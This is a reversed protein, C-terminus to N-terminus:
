RCPVGTGRDSYSKGAEPVFEFDYSAPHLTLKLVGYADTHSAETNAIPTTFVYHSRGGTGVVFERIGDVPDYARTATQPAFRQYNHDHGAVIVDAGFDYLAEWLAQMSPDSGHTGSSFRPRHWYALVCKTRRHASLDKKLWRVQKSRADRAIESNLSYIRWAGLDYAYYGTRSDGAAAGFYSFYGSAGSTHYDHNGPSPRTIAKHRGWTPDYYANFEALTGDPYANDGATFLTVRGPNAAVIADLLQATAEDGNGSSAIDGAGVLIPDGTGETAAPLSVRTTAATAAALVVLLVAVAATTARRM